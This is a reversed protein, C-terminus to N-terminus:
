HMFAFPLQMLMLAVSFFMGSAIPAWLISTLVLVRITRRDADSFRSARIYTSAGFAVLAVLSIAPGIIFTYWPLAACEIACLAGFTAAFIISPLVVVLAVYTIITRRPTASMTTDGLPRASRLARRHM